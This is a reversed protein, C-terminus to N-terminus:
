AHQLDRRAPLRKNNGKANAIETARTLLGLSGKEGVKRAPAGAIDIARERFSSNVVANAGIAIDDAIQIPGFIKAGPGIYVNNGITPALDASGAKAGINVCAHVRCNAGIKASESVVITGRHALCLGPGFVNPPISFGIRVGLSYYRYLAIFFLPRWFVSQKCNLYYEVKRLRRQFKWEYHGVLRPRRRQKGLALRDAELYFKYDSKSSIM